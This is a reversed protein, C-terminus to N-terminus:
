QGASSSKQSRTREYLWKVLIVTSITFFIELASSIIGVLWLLAASVLTICVLGALYPRYVAADRRCLTGVILYLCCMLCLAALFAFVIHLFSKFPLMEPLYPTTIACTLLVLSLPILWTGPPHVEMHSLIKKLCWYFYLGVCLGWLVFEGQRGGLNGIVSFNTTFWDSGEVFFITYAPIFFYAFFSIFM